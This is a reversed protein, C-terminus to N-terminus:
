KPPFNHERNTKTVAALIILPKSLFLFGGSISPHNIIIENQFLAPKGAAL